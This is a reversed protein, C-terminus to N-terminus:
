SEQSLWMKEIFGPKKIKRLQNELGSVSLKQLKNPLNVTLFKFVKTWDSDHMLRGIDFTLLESKYKLDRWNAPKSFKFPYEMPETHFKNKPNKMYPFKTPRACLVFAKTGKVQFKGSLGILGFIWNDDKKFISSIGQREFGARKLAVFFDDYNM